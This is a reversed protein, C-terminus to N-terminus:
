RRRLQRHSRYIAGNDRSAISDTELRRLGAILKNINARYETHRERIRRPALYRTWNRALGNFV